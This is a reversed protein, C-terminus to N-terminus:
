PFTSGVQVTANGPDKAIERTHTSAVHVPEQQEPAAATPKRRSMNAPKNAPAQMQPAQQALGQVARCTKCGSLAYRCKSCGTKKLKRGTKPAGKQFRQVQTVATNTFSPEIGRLDEAEGEAASSTIAMNPVQATVPVKVATAAPCKGAARASRTLCAPRTDSVPQHAPTSENGAAAGRRYREASKQPTLHAHELVDEQPRQAAPRPARKAPAPTSEQVAPASMQQEAAKLTPRTAPTQLASPAQDPAAVAPSREAARSARKAPATSVDRVSPASIQQESAKETSRKAPTQAVAPAQEVADEALAKAAARTTRMTPALAATQSAPASVQQEAAKRTSHTGPTQAAAPAEESDATMPSKGAARASRRAPASTADQLSQQAPAPEISNGTTHKHRKALMEAAAPAQGPAAAEPSQGAARASRKRPAGVSEPAAATEHAIRGSSKRHAPVYKPVPQASPVSPGEGATSQEAAPTEAAESLDRGATSRTRRVPVANPTSAPANQGEVPMSTVAVVVPEQAQGRANATAHRMPRCPTKLDAVVAEVNVAAPAVADPQSAPQEATNSDIPSAAEVHGSRIAVAAVPEQAQALANAGANRMSRRPTKLGTAAAEASVAAPVVADPQSLSQMAANSAPEAAAPLSKLRSFTKEIQGASRLHTFGGLQLHFDDSPMEHATTGQRPTELISKALEGAKSARRRSQQAIPPPSRKPTKRSRQSRREAEPAGVVAASPRKKSRAEKESAIVSADEATQGERAAGGAAICKM